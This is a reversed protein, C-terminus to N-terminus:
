NMVNMILKVFKALNYCQSNHGNFLEKLRWESNVMATKIGLISSRQQSFHTCHLVYHGEDGIKNLNCKTCLRDARDIGVYRLAEIPLKHNSMRYKAMCIRLNLPLDILYQELGM